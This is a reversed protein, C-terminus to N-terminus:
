GGVLQVPVLEIHSAIERKVFTRSLNNKFNV